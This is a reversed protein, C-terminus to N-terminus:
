RGKKNRSLIYVSKNLVISWKIPISTHIRTINLILTVVFKEIYRKKAVSFFAVFRQQNSLFENASVLKRSLSMKLESSAPASALDREYRSKSRYKRSEKLSTSTSHFAALHFCLLPFPLFSFFLKQCRHTWQSQMEKIKNSADHSNSYPYANDCGTIVM